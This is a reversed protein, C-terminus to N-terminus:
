AARRQQSSTNANSSGSQGSSSAGSAVLYNAILGALIGGIAPGVLYTAIASLEGSMVAPALYLSPNIIGGSTSGALLGALVICSGIAVGGLVQSGVTLVTFCLFFTALAEMAIASTSTATAAAVSSAGPMLLQLVSIALFAGVLQAAIYYGAQNWSTRKAVCSAITVAPNFHAGSVSGFAYVMTMLILGGAIAPILGTQGAMITGFVMTALGFTGITEAIFRQSTNTM